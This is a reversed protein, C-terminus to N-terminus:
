LNGTLNMIVSLAALPATECRLIRDGLWVRKAGARVAAEAEDPEFGGEPGVILAIRKAGGLGAEGLRIGGEKEYLILSLDFEPLRALCSEFTIIGSVEPIIGRGSQKAASLSIKRLREAKKDFREGNPRSVCRRSMVPVIEGAGLEVSKQLIEELKDQKPMAQFLTVFVSPEKSPSESLVSAAVATETIKKLTCAYDVGGCCVTILEGVRMRLSRSIHNADEGVIFFEGAAPPTDSFFRPM